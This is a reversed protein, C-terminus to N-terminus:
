GINSGRIKSLDKDDGLNGPRPDISGGGGTGLASDDSIGTGSGMTGGGAGGLSGGAGAGTGSGAHGAGLGGGAGMSSASGSLGGVTGSMVVGPGMTPAGGRSPDTGYFSHIGNAWTVDAMDPWSDKNFGPATKLREKEVNLVFRKNVTDLHLAQWPVAFLKEGMGLFGGFALVAYAVQGTNMDLMIEKIDGLDEEAGNVVSDGILTDAGMLSPGPGVSGTDKYMGYKDRDAYGM